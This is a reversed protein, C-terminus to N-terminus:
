KSKLGMQTLVEKAKLDMAAKTMEMARNSDQAIASLVATKKIDSLQM